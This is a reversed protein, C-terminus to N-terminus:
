QLNKKFTKFKSTMGKGFFFLITAREVKEINRPIVKSATEESAQREILFFFNFSCSEKFKKLFVHTALSELDQQKRCNQKSFNQVLSHKGMLNLLVINGLEHGVDNHKNM